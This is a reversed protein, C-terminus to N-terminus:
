CRHGRARASRLNHEITLANRIAIFQKPEGDYEKKSKQGYQVFEEELEIRLTDCMKVRFPVTITEAGMDAEFSILIQEGIQRAATVHMVRPKMFFWDDHNDVGFHRRLAAGGKLIWGGHNLHLLVNQQLTPVKSKSKKAAQAGQQDCHVEVAKKYRGIQDQTPQKTKVNTM